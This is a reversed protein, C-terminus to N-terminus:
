RLPGMSLFFTLKKENYNWDIWVKLVWRSTTPDLDSFFRVSRTLFGIFLTKFTLLFSVFFYVTSFFAFFYVFNFLFVFSKDDDFKSPLFFDKIVFLLVSDKALSNSEINFVWVILPLFCFFFTSLLKFDFSFFFFLLYFFTTILWWFELFTSERWFSLESYEFELKYLGSLPINDVLYLIFTWDLSLNLKSGFFFTFLLDFTFVSTIEAYFARSSWFWAAIVMWFNTLPCRTLFDM